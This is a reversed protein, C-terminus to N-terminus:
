PPAHRFRLITSILDGLGHQRRGFALTFSTAEFANAQGCATIAGNHFCL